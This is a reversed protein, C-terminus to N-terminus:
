LLEEEEAAYKCHLSSAEKYKTCNHNRFRWLGGQDEEQSAMMLQELCSQHSTGTTSRHNPTVMCCCVCWLNDSADSSEQTSLLFMEFLM